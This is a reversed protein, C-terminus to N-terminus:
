CHEDGLLVTVRPSRKLEAHREVRVFGRDELWRLQRTIFSRPTRCAQAARRISLKFPESQGRTVARAHGGIRWVHLALKLTRLTLGPMRELRGLWADDVWLYRRRHSGSSPHSPSGTNGFDEEEVNKAWVDEYSYEGSKKRRM